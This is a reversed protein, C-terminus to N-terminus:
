TQKQNVDGEEREDRANHLSETLEKETNETGGHKM